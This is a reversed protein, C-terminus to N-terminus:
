CLKINDKSVISNDKHHNTFSEMRLQLAKLFRLLINILGSTLSGRVQLGINVWWPTWKPRCPWKGGVVGVQEDASMM